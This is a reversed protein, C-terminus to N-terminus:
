QDVHVELRDFRHRSQDCRPIRVDLGDRGLRVNPNLPLYLISDIKGNFLKTSEIDHYTKERECMGVLPIGSREGAEDSLYRYPNQRAIVRDERLKVIGPDHVGFVVVRQVRFLLDPIQGHLDVDLANPPPAFVADESHSLVLSVWLLTQGWTPAYDVRRTEDRDHTSSRGLYCTRAITGAGFSPVNVM